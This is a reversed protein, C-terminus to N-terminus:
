KAGKREAALAKAHMLFSSCMRMMETPSVGSFEKQQLADDPGKVTVILKTGCSQDNHKGSMSIITPLPYHKSDSAILGELTLVLKRKGKSLNMFGSSVQYECETREQGKGAELSNKFFKFGANLAQFLQITEIRSTSSIYLKHSGSEQSTEIFLSNQINIEAEGSRVSVLDLPLQFYGPSGIKKALTMWYGHIQLWYDEWKTLQNPLAVKIYYTFPAISM